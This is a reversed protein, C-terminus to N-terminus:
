GGGRSIDSSRESLRRELSVMKAMLAQQDTRLRSLTVLAWIVAGLKLVWGVLVGLFVLLTEAPGLDFPM